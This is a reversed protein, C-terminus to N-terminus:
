RRSVNRASCRMKVAIGARIVVVAITRPLRHCSSKRRHMRFAMQSAHLSLPVNKTVQSVQHESIKMIKESVALLPKEDSVASVSVLAGDRELRFALMEDSGCYGSFTVKADEGWNQLLMCTADTPSVQLTRKEVGGTDGPLPNLM